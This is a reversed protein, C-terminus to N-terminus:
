DLARTWPASESARWCIRISAPKIFALYNAALKDYRTAVHRCQKIKNFSREILNRAVRESPIVQHCGM